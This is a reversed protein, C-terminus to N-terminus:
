LIQLPFSLLHIVMFLTFPHCVLHYHITHWSLGFWSHRGLPPTSLLLSVFVRRWSKTSGRLNDMLSPIFVLPSASPLGSCAVSSRGFSLHSHPGRDSVIDESFGYIRFVKQLMIEATEKASPLKPLPLFHAMKSLRDVVTLVVTNGDSPPLGTVFDLSIHSWPRKPVPLPLLEGQPRQHSVKYMACVSCANVYESVDNKADPWWFRQQVVYLTKLIGPHCVAKNTHAWHIVKGRLEPVVYLRGEPCNPPICVGIQAERVKDEIDWTFASLFCSKPLITKPNQDSNDPDFIRSLSDPKTNKSGPRFSLVFNFRSFFLSWRAQRFNLRKASKLYELNKHDTWVQFPQQAGELWHRWEELAVKVALLECDGIDYNREANTLRKSLFACPHLKGDKAHIQSLVAGIGVDSADVGM